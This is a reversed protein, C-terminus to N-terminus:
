FEEIQFNPKIQETPSQGDGYMNDWLGMSKLKLM